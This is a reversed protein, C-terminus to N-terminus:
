NRESRLTEALQFRAATLLRSIRSESLNLVAAIELLRLDKLYYLSVVLRQQNPLQEIATVLQEKEETNVLASQPSLSASYSELRDGDIQDLSRTRTFAAAALSDLIQNPSLGTTTVLADITVPPPLSHQAEYVITVRQQMAQPLPNNRRLEDVIAGRIRRGAYAAFEVGKTSDFRDAAQVLGLMGAGELNEVDVHPPFSTTMRGVLHRVLWLHDMVLTDRDALKSAKAYRKAAVSM